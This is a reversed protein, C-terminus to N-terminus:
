GTVVPEVPSPRRVLPAEWNDTASTKDAVNEVQISQFVLEVDELEHADYPDGTRDTLDLYANISAVTANTLTIRYHLAEMGAKDARFFEFVVTKLIENEALAQFLQPSTAGWQKTFKIPQYMRKGTAMGTAADRPSSASSFFRVGAIKGAHNKQVTEGKFKGQKQGEISIYFAYAM